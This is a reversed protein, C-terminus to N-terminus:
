IKINKWYCQALPCIRHTRKQVDDGSRILHLAEKTNRLHKYDEERITEEVPTRAPVDLYDFIELYDHVKILKNSPEKYLGYQNIKYGMNKAKNRLAIVLKKPYAYQFYAYPFHEKTTKWLNIEVRKNKYEILFYSQTEGHQMIDVIEYNNNFYNLVEDLNNYTLIDIDEPNSKLRGSSGVLVFKINSDVLKSTIQYILKYTVNEGYKSGGFM